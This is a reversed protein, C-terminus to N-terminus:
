VQLLARLAATASVDCTLGRLLLLYLPQSPSAAGRGEGEGQNLPRAALLLHQAAPHHPPLSAVLSTLLRLAEAHMHAFPTRLLAVAAWLLQPFLMLQTPTLSAVMQQLTLTAELAYVLSDSSASTLIRELSHLLQRVADTTMTPALARYVQRLPLFLPITGLGLSYVNSACM